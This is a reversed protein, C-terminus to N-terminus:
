IEERIKNIEELLLECKRFRLHPRKALLRTVILRNFSKPVDDRFNDIGIAQSNIISAINQTHNRSYDVFPHSQTLAEYLVIGLSFLDSRFDIERGSQALQEPSMYIKTGPQQHGITLSDDNLDFAVGADLLIFRGDQSLMINNPKIDRHIYQLEWFSQIVSSMEIGLQISERLTLPRNAIIEKLDKGEIFEESYYFYEHKDITVLDPKIPGTKIFFPTDIREMITFEREARRLITNRVDEGYEEYLPILKIAYKKEELIGVYVFKQGGESLFSVNSFTSLVNQIEAIEPAKRNFM